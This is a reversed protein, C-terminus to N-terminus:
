NSNDNLDKRPDYVVNGEADYEVGDKDITHNNIINKYLNEGVAVWGSTGIEMFDDEIYPWPM